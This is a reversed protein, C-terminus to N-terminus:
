KLLNTFFEEPDKGATLHDLFRHWAMKWEEQDKWISDEAEITWGLAKGLSQWFLPDLVLSRWHRGLDRATPETESVGRATRRMKYGGEIAKQIAQKM